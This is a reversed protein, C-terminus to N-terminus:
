LPLSIITMPTNRHASANLGQMVELWAGRVFLNTRRSTL